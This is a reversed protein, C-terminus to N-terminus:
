VFVGVNAHRILFLDGCLVTTGSQATMEEATLARLPVITIVTVVGRDHFGVGLLHEDTANRAIASAALNDLRDLFGPELYEVNRLNV